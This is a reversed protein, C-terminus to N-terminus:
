NYRGRSNYFKRVIIGQPWYDYSLLTARDNVTLTVKYSKYFESRTELEVCNIIDNNTISKCYRNVDASESAVNCGGIYIDFLRPACALNNNINVNDRSSITNTSRNKGNEEQRLKGGSSKKVNFNRRLGEGAFPGPTSRFADAYSMKPADPFERGALVTNNDENDSPIKKLNKQATKNVSKQVTKNEKQSAAEPMPRNILMIKIDNIDQKVDSIDELSKIDKERTERVQTLEINLSAVEDRLSGIMRALGIFGMQPPM